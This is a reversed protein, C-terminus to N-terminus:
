LQTPSYRLFCSSKLREHRWETGLCGFWLQWSPSMQNESNGWKGMSLFVWSCGTSPGCCSQWLFICLLSHYTPTYIHTHTQTLTWTYIHTHAHAFSCIHIHIYMHTHTYVYMHTYTHTGTHIHPTHKHTPPYIYKHTGTDKHTHMPAHTQMNIESRQHSPEPGHNVPPVVAVPRYYLSSAWWM